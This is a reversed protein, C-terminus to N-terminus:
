VLPKCRFLFYVVFQGTYVGISKIFLNYALISVCNADTLIKDTNVIVNAAQIFIGCFISVVSLRLIVHFANPIVFSVMGAYVGICFFVDSYQDMPSIADHAAM